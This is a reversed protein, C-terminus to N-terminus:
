HAINEYEDRRSLIPNKTPWYINFRPDDWKITFQSERDYHTTQKYHFFAKSGQVLHGNGFKPPVLIQLRNRDTLVWSQWQGYQPSTEDCNLVVLYFRGYLCTILKWTVKDGHIGRLVNGHSISIDDQVFDLHPLDLSDFMQIYLGRYDKYADLRRLLVGQLKTEQFQM